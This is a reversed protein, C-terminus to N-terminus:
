VKLRFGHVIKAGNKLTTTVVFHANTIGTDYRCVGHSCTGFLLERQQPDSLTTDLSGMVAQEQGNSFYTLYYSVSSAISLNSFTVEIALRDPRFSVLTTIGRTKAGTAAQQFYAARPLLRKAYINKYVTFFAILLLLISISIKKM